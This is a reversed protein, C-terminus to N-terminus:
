IQFAESLYNLRTLQHQRQRIPSFWQQVFLLNGLVDIATWQKAIKVALRVLQALIVLKLVMFSDMEADQKACDQM